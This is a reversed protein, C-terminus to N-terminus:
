DIKYLTRTHIKRQHIISLVFLKANTAHSSLLETLMAHANEKACFAIM